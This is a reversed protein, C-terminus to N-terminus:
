LLIFLKKHVQIIPCMRLTKILQPIDAIFCICQESAFLNIIKYVVDANADLICHM